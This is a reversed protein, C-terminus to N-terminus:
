TPPSGLDLDGGRPETQFVGEQAECFKGNGRRVGQGRRGTFPVLGTEVGSEAKVVRPWTRGSRDIGLVAGLDM